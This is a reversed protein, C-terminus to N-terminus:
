FGLELQNSKGLALADRGMSRLTAAFETAFGHVTFIRSPNVREIFALLEPYDAHDSLPFAADTAHRFRSNEDLAWGTLVATRRPEINAFLESRLAQQPAIIVHGAALMPALSTYEPFKCGLKQYIRTVAEVRPHLMIPFDADALHHLIEQSRGLSYGLLVPIEDAALADRCFTIARAMTEKAPPFVYHPRAFTTELILVDASPAECAEVTGSARTKFDGTYLLRGFEPHEILAQASGLVHGAPILTLKATPTINLSQHFPLPEVHGARAGRGGLLEATEPTCIAREHKAVHDFHAHSIVSRTAPYHADLHWDIQPLWIGNRSRVEWRM